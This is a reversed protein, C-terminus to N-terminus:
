DRELTQAPCKECIIILVLQGDKSHNKSDTEKRISEPLSLFM